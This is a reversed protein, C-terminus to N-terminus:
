IMGDRADQFCHKVRIGHGMCNKWRRNIFRLITWNNLRIWNTEGLEHKM